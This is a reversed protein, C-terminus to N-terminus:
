LPEKRYLSAATREHSRRFRPTKFVDRTALTTTLKLFPLPPAFNTKFLKTCAARSGSIPHEDTGGMHCPDITKELCPYGKYLHHIIHDFCRM